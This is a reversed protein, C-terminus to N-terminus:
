RRPPEELDWWPTFQGEPLLREVAAEESWGQDTDSCERDSLIRSGRIVALGASFRPANNVGDFRTRVVRSYLVYRHEGNAVNVQLEGGGSYGTRAWSLGASGRDPHALEVRGPRGYRYQVYRGGAETGACLAVQRTGIRCQFLAEEGARCLSPPAPRARRAELPAPAALHLAAMSAAAGSCIAIALEKM